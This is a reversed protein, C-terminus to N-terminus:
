FSQHLFILLQYFFSDSQLTGQEAWQCWRHLCVCHPPLLLIWSILEWLYSWSYTSLCRVTIIEVDCVCPVVTATTSSQLITKNDVHRRLLMTAKINYVIVLWSTLQKNICIDLWCYNSVCTHSGGASTVSSCRVTSCLSRMYSMYCTVKYQVSVATNTSNKSVAM